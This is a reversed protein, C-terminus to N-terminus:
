RIDNEEFKSVLYFNMWNNTGFQVSGQSVHKSNQVAM